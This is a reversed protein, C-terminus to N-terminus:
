GHRVAKPAMAAAVAVVACVGATVGVVPWQVTVTVPASLTALAAGLGALNVATVAMGLVAGLGVAFLTEGAVVGLVQPRTAGALRLANLEASRVSGAMLLTNALALATYLLAIGLVLVLGLRTQPSTRPHTAALWQDTSRVTGGTGSLAATVAARDAGPALRVDIRDVPATPANAATVYAGNNGTGIALVAAIRLSAPRGDGLWVRVTAGVTHQEWEENVVISRDDLDRLDGAVVPLREVAALTKADDVARAQSRILATGEERVFVATSASASSTAGPVPGAALDKSGRLDEGTVVLDARTHERAEAAKAQSVTMASGLVSGALAVTILVPAAVAATRRLSAATNARVLMGTAGPLRLLRTLPRVLLPALLAAATILVMPQTTYTKRKLLGSADTVLSKTMLFAAGALLAFGLLRRVPPLIGTDVDAERLAEAPGTRGARRSAAWVGALAVAPGTWFAAAYMPWAAPRIAFWSPAAEGEVLLHALHPAGWRGLACGAASALTGVVAAETLLLRRLQGPTAGATRLLGFERRRLAVAFAFTSAVVFVSVFATIGAATGLLANVTLLAEADQETAPDARRRDDGTLVQARNGVVRRVDAVPAGVGVADPGGSGTAQRGTLTVPGLKRLDSLLESDVPHPHALRQTVLATSAGRRVPVTLTDDGMVVVRSAAFRQPERDPADFTSALGLGMTAILGVGLALAVFTGILTTWRTRLAALAVTLM